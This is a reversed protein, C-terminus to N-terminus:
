HDSLHALISVSLFISRLKIFSDLDNNNLLYEFRM